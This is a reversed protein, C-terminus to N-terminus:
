GVRYADSARESYFVKVVSASTGLLSSLGRAPSAHLAIAATNRQLASYRHQLGSYNRKRRRPNGRRM